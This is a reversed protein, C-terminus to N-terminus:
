GGAPHPSDAELASIQEVRRRHEAGKFPTALWLEVLELAEAEALVKTGLVMVNADNNGRSIQVSFRSYALGARVGRIKNCAIVEGQGSGGIVIALDAEGRAVLRSVAACLPPYDVIVDPDDTGADTVAHGAAALRDFLRSKLAVGHHDAALAIRM